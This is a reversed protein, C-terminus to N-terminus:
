ECKEEVYKIARNLISARERGQGVLFNCGNCLLGRVRGTNHCHDVHLFGSFPTAKVDCIGCAGDQANYLAMYGHYDLGYKFKNRYIRDLHPRCDECNSVTDDGGTLHKNKPFKSIPLHVECIRCTKSMLAPRYEHPRDRSFMRHCKPCDATRKTRSILKEGDDPCRSAAAQLYDSRKPSKGRSM